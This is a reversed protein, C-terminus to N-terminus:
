WYGVDGGPCVVRAGGSAEAAGGEKGVRREESRRLPDRAIADVDEAMRGERRQLGDAVGLDDVGLLPLLPEDREANRAADRDLDVLAVTYRVALEENARRAGARREGDPRVRMELKARERPGFRHDRPGIKLPASEEPTGAERARLGVARRSAKVLGLSPEVPREILSRDLALGAYFM